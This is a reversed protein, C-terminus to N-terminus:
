NRNLVKGFEMRQIRLIQKLILSECVIQENEPEGVLSFRCTQILKQLVELLDNLVLVNRVFNFKQLKDIQLSLM